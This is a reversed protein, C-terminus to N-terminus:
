GLMPSVAISSFISRRALLAAARSFTILKITTTMENPYQVQYLSGDILLFIEITGIIYTRRNFSLKRRKVLSYQLNLDKDESATSCTSSYHTALNWINEITSLLQKIEPKPM